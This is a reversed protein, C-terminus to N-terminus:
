RARRVAEGMWAIQELADAGSFTMALETVGATHYRRAQEICEAPTGAISFALACREDLVEAPDEGARLRDAFRAFEDEGIATGTLLAQKAQELKQSLAWFRPLMEGIARKAARLAVDRDKHVSTPMYQVVEGPGARGSAARASRMLGALRQAFGASCL